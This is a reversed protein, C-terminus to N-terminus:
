QMQQARKQAQEQQDQLAKQKTARQTPSLMASQREFDRAASDLAAGLKQFELQSAEREKKYLSEAQAYGPTEELIKRTDVYAVKSSPAQQAATPAAAAFVAVVGAWISMAVLKM